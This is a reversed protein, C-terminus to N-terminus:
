AGVAEAAGIEILRAAEDASVEVVSGPGPEGPHGSYICKMRVAVASAPEKTKAM